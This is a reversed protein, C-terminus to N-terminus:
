ESDPLMVEGMNTVLVFNSGEPQGEHEHLYFKIDEEIERYRVEKVRDALKVYSTWALNGSDIRAVLSPYGEGVAMENYFVVYQVGENKWLVETTLALLSDLYPFSDLPIKHHWRALHEPGFQAVYGHPAATPNFFMGGVWVNESDFQEVALTYAGPALSDQTLMSDQRVLAIVTDPSWIGEIERKHWGEAYTNVQFREDSLFKARNAIFDSFGKEGNYREQILRPFARSALEIDAEQLTAFKAEAQELIQSISDHLEVQQSIVISDSQTPDRLDQEALYYELEALKYEFLKQPMADPDFRNLRDMLSSNLALDKTIDRGSLFDGYLVSFKADYDVLADRMPAIEEGLVTHVGEVWSAYDWIRAEEQVFDTDATGDEKFQNIEVLKLNSEYANFSLNDLLEAYTAQLSLTSDFNSTLKKLEEETDDDALLYLRNIDGYEEVLGQFQERTTAYMGKLQDLIMNVSDVRVSREKLGEIRTELDFQIDSLKIGFKGTRLDRRNYAAYYEDNKRIERDDIMGVAKRFYYTASDILSNMQDEEKLVDARVAKYEFMFGMQLRANAHEPEQALFARLFAEAQDYQQQQLMPYLDKYKVKNRQANTTAVVCFVALFFLVVKRM